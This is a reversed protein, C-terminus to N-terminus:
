VDINKYIYIYIYICFVEEALKMDAEETNPLESPLSFYEKCDGGLRMILNQIKDTMDDAM